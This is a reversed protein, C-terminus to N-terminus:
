PSRHPRRKPAARKRWDALRAEALGIESAPTKHTKKNLATLALLVQSRAGEPAFLIRYIVRNGTARVEWVDGRLHRAWALGNKRVDAM